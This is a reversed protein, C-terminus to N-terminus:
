KALNWCMYDSFDKLLYVEWVRRERRPLKVAGGMDTGAEEFKLVTEQVSISCEQEVIKM